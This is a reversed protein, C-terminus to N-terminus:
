SKPTVVSRSFFVQSAEASGPARNKDPHLQLALRKYAKKVETDPSDKNVNLVEYYDKCRKIRRVM